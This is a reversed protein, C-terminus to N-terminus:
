TNTPINSIIDTDVLLTALTEGQLQTYSYYANEGIEHSEGQVWLNADAADLTGSGDGDVRLIDTDSVAFVASADLVLAGGDTIDIVEVATIATNGIVTLTVDEGDLRLTDTGAGGSVSTDADDWVLTDEGSGGILTDSGAGGNLTDNGGKGHLINDGSNGEITNDGGNGSGTIDASGTLTLKEVNQGLTYAVSSKVLDTGADPAETVADTASGVVYTDNGAGGNMRDNGSGGDLTDKGKGGNLTDNGANGNLTDNGDNGNLVDNGNGGNLVDNGTHANITDNGGYGNLTQDSRHGFIKDDGALLSTMFSDATTKDLISAKGSVDTARIYRGDVNLSVADITGSFSGDKYTASGECALKIDTSGYVVHASFDSFEFTTEGRDLKRVDINGQFDFDFKASDYTMKTINGSVTNSVRVNGVLELTGRPSNDDYRFYNITAPTDELSSGRLVFKGGGNVSGRIETDSEFTRSVGNNFEKFSDRGRVYTDVLDANAASTSDFSAQIEDLNRYSTHIVAV